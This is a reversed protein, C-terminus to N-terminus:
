EHASSDNGERILHSLRSWWESYGTNEPTILKDPESHISNEEFLRISPKSKGMVLFRTSLSIAEIISHTVFLVTIGSKYWISKLERQLMVRTDADVSAFPEDMLILSPEMALARAIAVRQKMGGSLQYPYYDKFKDLGVMDLYKRAHHQTEVRNTFKHNIILPYMVNGLITKWPLLQDFTQFVMGCHTGPEKIDKGAISITGSTPPLFGGITRLLTTKGCGSPGTISLFEGKKLSFSVKSYAELKQDGSIFHQTLNNVCLFDTM